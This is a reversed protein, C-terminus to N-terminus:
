SAEGAARRGPGGDGRPQGADRRQGPRPSKPPRDNAPHYAPATAQQGSGDFALRALTPLWIADNFLVVVMAARPIRGAAIGALCAGVGLAKGLLATRLLPRARAPNAAAWWYAPAFAAVTVGAARWGTADSGAKLGLMRTLLEPAIMALAGWAANYVAAARLWRSGVRPPEELWVSSAPRTEPLPEASTLRFTGSYGLIPGLLPLGITLDITISDDGVGHQIARARPTLIAPLPVTLRGMRLRGGRAVIALGHAGAPEMRWDVELWRGPGMREVIAGRNSDFSVEADFARVVAFGFRRAWFQRPAGEGDRLAHVRLTAPVDRGADPFLVRQRAMMLLAPDLWRHRRWVRDMTGVLLVDRSTDDHAFLRTLPEALEQDWQALVPDFPSGPRIREM